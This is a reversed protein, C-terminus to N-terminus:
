CSWLATGDIDLDCFDCCAGHEPPENRVLEEGFHALLAKRRCGAARAFRQTDM